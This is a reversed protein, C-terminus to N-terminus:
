ARLQWSSRWRSAMSGDASTRWRPPTRRADAHFRPDVIRARDVFLRVAASAEVAQLDGASEPAPVPLSRVAFPREGDIGLGERSTILIRLEDGAGLLAEVLERTSQLLHECNDLVLLM